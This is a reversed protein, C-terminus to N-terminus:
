GESDQQSANEAQGEGDGEEDGEIEEEKVLRKLKVQRYDTIEKLRTLDELLSKGSKLLEFGDPLEAKLTPHSETIYEDVKAIIQDYEEEDVNVTFPGILANGNDPM